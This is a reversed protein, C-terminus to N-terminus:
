GFPRRYFRDGALKPQWSGDSHCHIFGDLAIVVPNELLAVM